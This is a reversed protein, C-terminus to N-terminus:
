IAHAIALVSATSHEDDASRVTWIQKILSQQSGSSEVLHKVKADAVRVLLLSGNELGQCSLSNMGLGGKSKLLFM